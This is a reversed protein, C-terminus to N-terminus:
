SYKRVKTVHRAVATKTSHGEFIPTNGKIIERIVLPIIRHIASFGSRQLQRPVLARQKSWLVIVFVPTVATNACLVWM